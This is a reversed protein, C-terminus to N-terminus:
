IYPYTHNGWGMNTKEYNDEKKNKLTYTIILNKKGGQVMNLETTAFLIQIWLILIMSVLFKVWHTSGNLLNHCQIIM